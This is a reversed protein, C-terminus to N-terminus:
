ILSVFINKLIIKIHGLNWQSTAVFYISRIIKKLKIFLDKIEESMPIERVSFISKPSTTMLTTKSM